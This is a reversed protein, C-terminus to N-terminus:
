LQDLPPPERHIPWRQTIDLSSTPVDLTEGLANFVHGKTVDGVPVEIPAGTDTVEAGRVLGDTPQMSIARVLNDGLHQEVELTLVKDGESLSVNVKLANFIAPMADRPFEADVVPGIVRTVRGVGTTTEEVAATM